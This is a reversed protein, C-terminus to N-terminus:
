PGDARDSASTLAPILQEVRDTRRRWEVRQEEGDLEADVEQKLLIWQEVFRPIAEDRIARLNGVRRTIIDQVRAAQEDTLDLKDQVRSGLREGVQAPSLGRLHAVARHKFVLTGVAGIIIGCFLIAAGPLWARWWSPRTVSRRM